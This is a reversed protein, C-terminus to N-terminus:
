KLFYANKPIKTSDGGYFGDFIEKNIEDTLNFKPNYNQTTDHVCACSTLVSIGIILLIIKM